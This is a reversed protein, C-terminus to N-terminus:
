YLSAYFDAKEWSLEDKKPLNLMRELYRALLDTEINVRRGVEFEGFLSDKLSIPIITLRVSDSLVENITLSVGEVAISGKTAVLHMINKPLKIYFNVGTKLPEIKTIVGLADIHGQMLHGDLRDGLRMAPEIHVRNKYNEIALLEKSESSLEVSFGGESVSVVSLCAGNVAISDGLNPKFNAALSLTKGDFKVVKAIERILGNFM